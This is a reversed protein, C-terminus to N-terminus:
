LHVVAIQVMEEFARQIAKSIRGTEGTIFVSEFQSVNGSDPTVGLSSIGVSKSSLSAGCTKSLHM